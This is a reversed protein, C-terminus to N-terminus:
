ASTVLRLNILPARSFVAHNDIFKKKEKLMMNCGVLYIVSTDATIKCNPLTLLFGIYVEPM